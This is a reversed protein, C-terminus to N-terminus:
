SQLYCSWAAKINAMQEITKAILVGLIPKITKPSYYNQILCREGLKNTKKYYPCANCEQPEPFFADCGFRGRVTALKRLNQLSPKNLFEQMALVYTEAANPMDIDAM